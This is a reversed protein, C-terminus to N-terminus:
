HDGEFKSEVKFSSAVVESELSLYHFFGQLKLPMPKSMILSPKFVSFVANSLITKRWLQSSCDGSPM